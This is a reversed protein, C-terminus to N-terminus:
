QIHIEVRMQLFFYKFFDKQLFLIDDNKSFVGFLVSGFSHDLKSTHFNYGFAPICVIQTVFPAPFIFPLRCFSAVFVTHM